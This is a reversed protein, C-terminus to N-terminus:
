WLVLQVLLDQVEELGFLPPSCTGDLHHKTMAPKSLVVGLHGDVFVWGTGAQAPGRLMARAPGRDDLCAVVEEELAQSKCLCALPV